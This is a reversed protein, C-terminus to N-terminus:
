TRSIKLLFPVSSRHFHFLEPLPGAGQKFGFHVADHIRRPDGIVQGHNGQLSVRQDQADRHFVHLALQHVHVMDADGVRHATRRALAHINFDEGAGLNLLAVRGLGSVSLVPVLDGADGEVGLVGELGEHHAAAVLQGM